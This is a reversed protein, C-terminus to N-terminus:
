PLGEEPASALVAAKIISQVLDLSVSGVGFLEMSNGETQLSEAILSVLFFALLLRHKQYTM